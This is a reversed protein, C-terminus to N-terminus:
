APAQAAAAPQTAPQGSTAKQAACGSLIILPTLVALASLKM